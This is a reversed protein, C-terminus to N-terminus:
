AAAVAAAPVGLVGGGAAGLSCKSTHTLLRQPLGEMWLQASRGRPGRMGRRVEGLLVMVV